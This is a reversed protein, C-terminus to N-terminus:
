QAPVVQLEVPKSLLNRSFPHRGGHLGPRFCGPRIIRLRRGPLFNLITDNVRIFGVFIMPPAAQGGIEVFHKGKSSIMLTATFGWSSCTLPNSCCPWTPHGNRNRLSTNWCSTIALRRMPSSLAISGKSFAIATNQGSSTAEGSGVWRCCERTAFIILQFTGSRSPSKHKFRVRWLPKAAAPRVM